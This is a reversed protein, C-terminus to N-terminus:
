IKYTEPSLIRDIIECCDGSLKEAEKRHPFYHPFRTNLWLYVELSKHASEADELLKNTNSGFAHPVCVSM